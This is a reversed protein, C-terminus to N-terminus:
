TAEIRISDFEIAIEAGVTSFVYAIHAGRRAGFHASKKLMEIAAPYAESDPELVEIANVINLLGGGDITARTVGRFTVTARRNQDYLALTLTNPTSAGEEKGTAIIDIYWDHFGGFKELEDITTM